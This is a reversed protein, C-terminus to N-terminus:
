ILLPIQGLVTATSFMPGSEQSAGSAPSKTSHRANTRTSGHGNPLFLLEASNGKIQEFHVCLSCCRPVFFCLPGSNEICYIQTFEPSFASERAPFYLQYTKAMSEPHRSVADKGHRNSKETQSLNNRFNSRSKFNVFRFTTV